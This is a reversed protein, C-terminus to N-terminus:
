SLVLLLIPLLILLILLCLPIGLYFVTSLLVSLGLPFCIVLVVFFLPPVIEDPIDTIGFMGIFIFMPLAALQFTTPDKISFHICVTCVLYVIEAIRLIFLFKKIPMIAMKAKCRFYFDCIDLFCFFSLLILCWVYTIKYIVHIEWFSLSLDEM